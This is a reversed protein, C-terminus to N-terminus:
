KLFIAMFLMAVIFTSKRIKSSEGFFGGGWVCVCVVDVTCVPAETM